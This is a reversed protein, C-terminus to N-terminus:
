IGVLRREAGDPPSLGVTEALNLLLVGIRELSYSQRMMELGGASLRAWLDADTYLRAIAAAMAEADDAILVNEGDDLGMGEAAVSTAVCPVGAALSMAVKGKIGAGFRLPAITIRCSDLVPTLNEVFGRFNVGGMPNNLRRVEPSANSGVITIECDPLLERTKPWIEEAIWKVADVNPAHLFGGVFLAGSRADFAAKTQTVSRAFPILHLNADPVLGSLLKLEEESLVIVADAAAVCALEQQRRKSAAAAKEASGSLAAEREERLFHLDVTNFVVKAQPAWRRVQSILRAAVHVRNLMILSFDGGTEAIVQEPQRSHGTALYRVGANHLAEIYPADGPRRDALAMFAVDYGMVQFIWIQNWVDLSGSDQDPTPPFWDVILVAHRRKGPALAHAHFHDPFVPAPLSSSPRVGRVARIIGRLPATIRWSTSSLLDNVQSQYRYALASQETVTANAHALEDGQVSLRRVIEETRATLQRIEADKDSVRGTLENLRVATEDVLTQLRRIETDRISVEGALAVTHTEMDALVRVAEKDQLVSFPVIPLPSNSALGILYHADSAGDGVVYNRGDSTSLLRWSAAAGGNEAGIVSGTLSEQEFLAVHGFRRQLLFRFEERDLEKLHYENDHADAESYVRRDPTSIILLGDKRMASMVGDLFAEHAVLHEITEFSVVVDFSEPELSLQTANAERFVVSEVGYNRKAFAITESSVDVGLVSRAVTGLLASGYGEGCAVDLVDRGVCFQAAFLYRHHHEHRIAGSLGSTYREGTFTQHEAPLPLSLKVLRHNLRQSDM